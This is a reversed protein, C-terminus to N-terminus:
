LGAAAEFLPCDLHAAVLCLHQQRDTPLRGPPDTAGCRHERAPQSSRWAGDSAVLFPCVAATIQPTTDAPRDTGTRTPPQSRGPVPTMGNQASLPASETM